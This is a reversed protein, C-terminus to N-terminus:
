WQNEAWLFLVGGLLATILQSVLIPVGAGYWYDEPAYVGFGSYLMVGLLLLSPLFLLLSLRLTRSLKLDQITFRSRKLLFVALTALSAILIFVMAPRIREWHVGLPGARYAPLFCGIWGLGLSIGALWAVMRSLRSKGFWEGFVTKTWAPDKSAKFSIFAFFVFVAFLGLALILRPLSLGFVLANGPESPSSIMGGLIFIAALALFSSYAVIIGQSGNTNQM